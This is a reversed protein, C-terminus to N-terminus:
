VRGEIRGNAKLLRINSEDANRTTGGAIKLLDRVKLGEGVQYTMFPSATEGVVYAAQNRRPVLIEDGDQLEVDLRKDGAPGAPVDM